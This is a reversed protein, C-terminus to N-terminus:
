KVVTDIFYEKGDSKVIVAGKQETTYVETNYRAFRNIVMPDPQGFNNRGVQIIAVDPNVWKLFDDTSSTSSGHHPVKLIDVDLQRSYKDAIYTEAQEEIDGTFLFNMNDYEMKLVMSNNNEDWGINEMIDKQPHLVHFVVEDIKIIDGSELKYIPISKYKAIQMIDDFVDNRFVDTGIFVSKIKINEILAKLGKIHDDHAHSIFVADISNVGNKLLYPLVIDQGTDFDDGYINGGSDILVNYGSKSIHICDGQGVDVFVVKLLGDDILMGLPLILSITIIVVTIKKLLELSIYKLQDVSIVLLLLLYYIVIIMTPPSVARISSFPIRGLYYVAREIIVLLLNVIRFIYYSLYLSIFSALGGIFGLIVSVGILPTLFINSIFSILSFKNFHFMLLPMIGLQASLTILFLDITKGSINDGRIKDKMTPYLIVISTTTLFSFQFGLNFLMFPNLILIVLAAISINTLSDSNRNINKGMLVLCFMITARIVSPTAGCMLCYIVLIFSTLFFAWWKKIKLVKLIYILGAAIFGVHLGSVALVHAIGTDTFGEKTQKDMESKDGFLMGKLMSSQSPKLYDDIANILVNKFLFVFREFKNLDTKGLYEIQHWNSSMMYYIGKQKLYAKYDFCGPNRRGPPQYIKGQVAIKDGYNLALHHQDSYHSYINLLINSNIKQKRNNVKVYQPKLTLVTKEKQYNPQEVINGYVVAALDPQFIIDIKDNEKYIYSTMGSLIIIVSLLISYNKNYTFYLILFITIAVVLMSVLISINIDIKSGLIIGSM